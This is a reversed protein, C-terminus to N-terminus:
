DRKPNNKVRFYYKIYYQWLALMVAIGFGKLLARKFGFSFVVFGIVIGTFTVDILKEKSIVYLPHNWVYALKDVLKFKFNSYTYKYKYNEKFKVWKIGKKSSKLAM